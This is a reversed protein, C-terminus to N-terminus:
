RLMVSLPAPPSEQETASIAFSDPPHWTRRSRTGSFYGPMAGHSIQIESDWSRIVSATGSSFIPANMSRILFLSTSAVAMPVNVSVPLHTTFYLPSVTM